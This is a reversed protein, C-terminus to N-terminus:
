LGRILGSSFKRRHDAFGDSQHVADRPIQLAGGRAALFFASHSFSPSCGNQNVLAAIWDRSV